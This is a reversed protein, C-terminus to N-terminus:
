RHAPRLSVMYIVHEKRADNHPYQLSQVVIRDDGSKLGSESTLATFQTNDSLRRITVMFFPTDKVPEPKSTVMFRYPLDTITTESVLAVGPAGLHPAAKEAALRSEKVRYQAYFILGMCLSCGVLLAVAEGKSLNAM